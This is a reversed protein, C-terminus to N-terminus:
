WFLRLGFYMSMISTLYNSYYNDLHLRVIKNCLFFMKIQGVERVFARNLKSLQVIGQLLSFLIFINTFTDGCKHPQKYICTHRPANCESSICRNLMCYLHLINELQQVYIYYLM